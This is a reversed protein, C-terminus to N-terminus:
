YSCYPTGYYSDDTGNQEVGWRRKHIRFNLCKGLSFSLLWCLRARRNMTKYSFALSCSPATTNFPFPAQCLTPTLRSRRSLPLTHAHRGRLPMNLRWLPLAHLMKMRMRVTSPSCATNLSSLPRKVEDRDKGSGKQM